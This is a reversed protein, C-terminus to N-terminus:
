GLKDAIALPMVPVDQFPGRKKPRRPFLPTSTGISGAGMPLSPGRGEVRLETRDLRIAACPLSPRGHLHGRRLRQAARDVGAFRGFMVEIEGEVREIGLSLCTFGIYLTLGM